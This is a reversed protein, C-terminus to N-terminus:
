QIQIKYKKLWYNIQLFYAITQPTTMLQGYWPQNNETKFYNLVQERNFIKWLPCDNNLNYLENRLTELYKPDYTKPFPSKTREIIENPLLDKFAERLIGKEISNVTKFSNPISYVYNFINIDCFPVRVDLGFANSMRDNRDILTQMFYHINLQIMQKYKIDHEFDYENVHTNSLVQNYLDQIYNEYNTQYKENLLSNRLKINKYWPFTHINEKFWPYGGFIEDSCEGSFVVDVEEKVKKCFCYLSSDIDGMGPLDRADVSKYLSKILDDNNLTIVKHDLDYREIMLQIYASDLTPQYSSPIFNTDNDKFELSFTKLRKNQKKLYNSAVAVIISSDLGGSLFAGFEDLDKMQSEISETVINRINLITEKYNDMHLKSKLEYYKEKTFDNNKYFAYEGPKLEFINKFFTNGELRGPGLYSLQQISHEDIIPQVLPYTLLTKIESAFVLIKDIFTYFLPKVGLQDRVLFLSKEDSDYIVFSFHGNMYDLCKEKYISYLNLIVELDNNFNTIKKQILHEKIEEINFCKGDFIIYYQQISAIQKNNCCTQMLSVHNDIYISNYLGRHKMSQIMKEFITIQNTIQHAEDFIGAIGSM